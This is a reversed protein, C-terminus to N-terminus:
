KENQLSKNRFLLYHFRVIFLILVTFMNYLMITLFDFGYVFLFAILLLSYNILVAWQLSLLRLQAIFEDETEEKSFAVFLSGIIFLVGIITLTLNVNVFDFYHTKELFGGGVFAFVKANLWSFDKDTISYIVWAIVSIMLIVWGILKFKHPLLFNTRM